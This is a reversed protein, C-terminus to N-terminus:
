NRKLSCLASVVAWGSALWLAHLHLDTVFLFSLSLAGVCQGAHRTSGMLGSAAGSRHKPAGTVFGHNNPSQFFAFGIGCLALPWLMYLMSAQVPLLALAALGLALLVAGTGCLRVASVVGISRGVWPATLALAIPWATMVMGTEAITLGYRQTFLFPLAIFAITQASFASLSAGMSWRYIRTRILDLPFMPAMQRRQRRMYWTATLVFVVSSAAIVYPQPDNAFHTLRDLVVFLVGFMLMNLAIDLGSWQRQRDKHSEGAPLVKWGLLLVAVVVPFHFVFLWRWSSFVSLIGAAILPGSVTSVASIMSNLAIGKGLISRPYIQRVLATNVSLVGAVGLGQLARALVLMVLNPASAALISGVGFVAIGSLYIRRYGLYDGLASLPFLVMLPIIQGANVIWLSFVPDINWAKSLTPLAMNLMTTDAVCLFLGCVITLIAWHRRPAPLGNETTSPSPITNPQM